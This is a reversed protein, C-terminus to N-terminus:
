REVQPGEPWQGLFLKAAEREPASRGTQRAWDAVIEAARMMGAPPVGLSDGPGFVGTVGMADVALLPLGNQSRSTQNTLRSLRGERDTFVVFDIVRWM